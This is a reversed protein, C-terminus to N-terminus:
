ISPTPLETSFGVHVSPRPSSALFASIALGARQAHLDILAQEIASRVAHAVLGGPSHPLYRTLDGAAAADRGVALRAMRAAQAVLLEEWGNLSCEGWGTAGDRDTVAIFTWNTRPSVNVVIAEIAAITM